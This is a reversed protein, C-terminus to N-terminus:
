EIYQLTGVDRGTTNQALYSVKQSKRPVENSVSGTGNTSVGTEAGIPTFNLSVEMIHPLILQKTGGEPEDLAIEWPSDNPITYSVSELIGLQADFYNGVTMRVLPGRMLIGSTGGYDPMLNSMLFNLKQYMPKMEEASLAAVKFGIQIKRSFGNYIYFKDGRGAYNIANWTADTSDSFSTLYARFVMWEGSQPDDTNVAQIRFKVLDRVLHKGDPTRDDAWYNDATFIPTLNIEDKRGSGVRNERSVASWNSFGKITFVDGYSNKYGITKVDETSYNGKTNDVKNGDHQNNYIGFQNVYLDKISGTSDFFSDLKNPNKLSQQNSINKVLKSYTMLSPSQFNMTPEISAVNVIAQNIENSGTPIEPYNEIANSLTFSNKSNTGLGIIYDVPTVNGNKKNRTKGAFQTSFEFSGTTAFENATIDQNLIIYDGRRRITTYGIGYVSSPGGIYTDINNSNGILENSYRLLRNTGNKNNETVVNFYYKSEDVNPTFGHRVIHGGIANVPIQALTNIGLNYIRTPGIANEIKGAVNAVFNITNNLFGQGNNELTIEKSELRPNSLQLGVQKVIFLPGQPVDTLFKGIRLTDTIAANATGIIGGRILGDDFKTFRLKNLTGDDVTNINTQIYPQKSSGGDLTDHGYKLSKLDTKLTILGPM